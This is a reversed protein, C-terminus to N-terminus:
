KLLPIEIIFAASKGVGTNVTLKGNLIAVRNQISLLGIGNLHQNIEDYEFGIGDDQTTITLQKNEKTIDIKL